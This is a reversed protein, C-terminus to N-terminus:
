LSTGAVSDQASPLCRSSFVVYGWDILPGKELIHPVFRKHRNFANVRAEARKLLNKVESLQLNM